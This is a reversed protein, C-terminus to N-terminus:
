GKELAGRYDAIGGINTVTYGKARLYRCAQGSRAGSQCYVFVPNNKDIKISELCDLPLNMSGPVHGGTYEQATRVDLLVANPTNRAQEMGVAFDSRNTLFGFISM